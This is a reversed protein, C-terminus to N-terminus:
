RYKFGKFDNQAKLYDLVYNLEEPMRRKFYVFAKTKNKIESIENFKNTDVGFPLAEVRIGDCLNNNRWLDRTWDSPQVYIVNKGSIINMHHKEPFVSFHPGFLFKSNPYKKAEIPISPSYILDYKSLDIVDLNTHNIIDYENNYKLLADFNKQHM